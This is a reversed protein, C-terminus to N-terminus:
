RDPQTQMVLAPSKGTRILHAMQQMLEASDNFFRRYGACLYNLGPEGTPTMLFRNKPCEGHCLHLVECQRCYDPLSDSKQQGFEEQRGSNILNLLPTENLNGLLHDSDVFHDCCYVDGNHEMALARGCTKRFVCLSPEVDLWASLAQDFIQVFVRGIDSTKWEDFVDCLFQGFQDPDVSRSSVAELRQDYDTFDSQLQGESHRGIGKKEVIPIFQMFRCGSDRLYRYMRKGDVANKRHLVVMANFEVGFKKLLRLGRIVNAHSGQGQTDVRYADHWEAPGDISLGVLFQHRKLFLCWDGDLLVGNTQISNVITMNPRAHQKQIEVCREFFEIGLLTPEGGQWAFTVEPTNQPQAEIYQRIYSELTTDSMKWRNNSPYLDEKHLYYCYKCDLNCIPGIPKTMVHFPQESFNPM